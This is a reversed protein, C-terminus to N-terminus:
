TLFARWDLVDDDKTKKGKKGTRGITTRSVDKPPMLCKARHHGIIHCNTCTIKRKKKPPPKSIEDTGSSKCSVTPHVKGGKYCEKKSMEEVTRTQTAVRRPTRRRTYLKSLKRTGDHERQKYLVDSRGTQIINEGMVGLSKGVQIPHQRKLSKDGVVTYLATGM